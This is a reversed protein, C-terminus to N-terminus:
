RRWSRRIWHSLWESEPLMPLVMPVGNFMSGEISGIRKCKEGLKEGWHHWDYDLVSLDEWRTLIVRTDLITLM